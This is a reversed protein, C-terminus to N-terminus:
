EDTLIGSETKDMLEQLGITGQHRYSTDWAAPIAKFLWWDWFERRKAIDSASDHSREAYAFAAWKATDSSWPDLWDDTTNEDMEISDFYRHMGITEFLAEVAATGAFFADVHGSIEPKDGLRELQEFSQEAEVRATEVPMMGHLVKDAMTLMLHPMSDDPWAERWIPLVHRSTVLALWGRVPSAEAANQTEIVRYIVQRCIPALMHEPNDIMAAHAQEIAKQLEKPLLMGM